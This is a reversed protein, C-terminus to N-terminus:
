SHAPARYEAVVVTVNDSGGAALASDVLAKTADTLQGAHDLAAKIQPDSVVGHLGDSCLLLRDGPALTHESIVPEVAPKTGLAQSLVNRMPFTRAQDATLVGADQLERALSQDKTLPCLNGEHLLYARSDGVQAVTLMGPRVIVATCTTGMGHQKSRARAENLIARNAVAVADGLAEATDTEVTDSADV